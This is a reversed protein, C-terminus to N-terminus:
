AARVADAHRRLSALVARLRILDEDVVALRTSLQALEEAAGDVVGESVSRAVAAIRRELRWREAEIELARAYGDTLTEEVRALAAAGGVPPQSLMGEIEALLPSLDPAVM